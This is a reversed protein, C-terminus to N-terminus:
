CPRVLHTAHEHIKKPNVSTLPDSREVGETGAYSQVEPRLEVQLEIWDNRQKDSLVELVEYNTWGIAGKHKGELVEVKFPGDPLNDGNLDQPNLADKLLLHIGPKVSFAVNKLEHDSFLHYVEDVEGVLKPDFKFSKPDLYFKFTPALVAEGSADTCPYPKGNACILLGNEILYARLPSVNMKFKVNVGLSGDAFTQTTQIDPSTLLGEIKLIEDIRPTQAPFKTKPDPESDNKVFTLRDFVEFKDPDLFKTPGDVSYFVEIVAAKKAFAIAEDIKGVPSVGENQITFNEM